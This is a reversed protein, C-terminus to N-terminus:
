SQEGECKEVDFPEEDEEDNLNRIGTFRYQKNLPRLHKVAQLYEEPQWGELPIENIHEERAWLTSGLRLGHPKEEEPDKYPDDVKGLLDRSPTVGTLRIYLADSHAKQRAFPPQISSVVVRITCGERLHQKYEQPLLRGYWDTFTHQPVLRYRIPLAAARLIATAQM